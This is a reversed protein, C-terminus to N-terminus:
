VQAVVGFLKRDEILAEVWGVVYGALWVDSYGPDSLADRLLPPIDTDTLGLGAYDDFYTLYGSCVGDTFDANTRVIGKDATVLTQGRHITQTTM